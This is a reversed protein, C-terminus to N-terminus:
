RNVIEQLWNLVEPYAKIKNKLKVVGHGEDAFRLLRTEIGRKQLSEYIQISESLPVREDNDGQIIFLPAKIRDVKHIPSIKVLTEYDDELSGYEAERLKRRWAATNKLFTVFDSIGVIDVGAKWLDPYETLCSLVAFGGYSGGYIVLKEGNIENDENKLHKALEAIDRIADLRKEKNDADLYKRGYGASGRINPAIVAFGASLYFQIIPNFTPRFQAEPGGHIMLIAPFGGKPMSSRPLYRFYPIELGDFSKYRLLEEKSFANRDLGATSPQTIRYWEREKLDYIWISTPETSSSLTVALWNGDPSRSIGKTFSRTDGQVIVGKFPLPIEKKETMGNETIITQFLVNYGERNESFFIADDEYSWDISTIDYPSKADLPDFKGSLTLIGLKRFDNQYDTVVLLKNETLFKVPSWVAHEEFNKETLKNVQRTEMDYILIETHVNSSPRVIAIKKEEKDITGIRYLGEDPSIVEELEFFSTSFRYIGFSRKDRINASVYVHNDTIYNILIKSNPYDTVKIIGNNKNIMYVQFNENGGKDTQFIIEGTKLFRPNTCRDESFTKKEPWSLAKKAEVSYVQLNGPADYVFAIRKSDPSWTAGGTTEIGLYYKFDDM